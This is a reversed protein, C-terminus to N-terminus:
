KALYIQNAGTMLITNLKDLQKLSKNIKDAYANKNM